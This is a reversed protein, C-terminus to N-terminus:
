VKGGRLAKGATDDSAKAAAVVDAAQEPPAVSSHSNEAAADDVAAEQAAAAAASAAHPKLMAEEKAVAAEDVAAMAAAEELEEIQAAEVAKEGASEEQPKVEDVEVAVQLAEREVAADALAEFGAAAEKPLEKEAQRVVEALQEASAQAPLKMGSLAEQAGSLVADGAGAAAAQKAKTMEAVSSNMMAAAKAVEKQLRDVPNGGTATANGKNKKKGFGRRHLMDRLLPGVGTGKAMFRRPGYGPQEMFQHLMMINVLVFRLCLQHGDM